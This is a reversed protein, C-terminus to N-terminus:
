KYRLVCNQELEKIDKVLKELAGYLHEINGLHAITKGDLISQNARIKKDHFFTLYKDFKSDKSM